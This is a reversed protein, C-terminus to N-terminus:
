EIEVTVEDDNEEITNSPENNTTTVESLSPTYCFNNGMLYMQRYVKEWLSQVLPMLVYSLIPPLSLLIKASNTTDSTVGVQKADLLQFFLLFVLVFVALGISSGIIASSAYNPNTITEVLVQSVFVSFVTHFAFVMFMSLINDWYIIYVPAMVFFLIINSLITLSMMKGMDYYKGSFFLSYLGNISVNGICSSLFAILILVLPLLPSSGIPNEGSITKIATGIASNFLVTIAFIIFSLIIGIGLGIAVKGIIQGASTNNPDITNM